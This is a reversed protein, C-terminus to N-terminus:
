LFQTFTGETSPRRRQALALDLSHSWVGPSFKHVSQLLWWLIIFVAKSVFIKVERRLCRWHRRQNTVYVDARAFMIIQRWLVLSEYFYCCFLIIFSFCLVMCKKLIIKKFSKIQSLVFPSPCLSLSFCVGQQAPLFVYPEIRPGWSWSRLWLCVTLWSLWGPM